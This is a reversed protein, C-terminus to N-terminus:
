KLLGGHRLDTLVISALPRDTRVRIYRLGRRRCDSARAELWRQHSDRYAALTEQSIGLELVAGSEADILEVEGALQPELEQPSVLHIVAVDALRGRLADLGALAGEPTLLDSVVVAISSRSLNRSGCDALAADLDVLGVPMVQLLQRVLQPVQAGRAFPRSLWASSLPQGLCTIRVSEARAAGVYALASVVQAGVQLKAPLGYDMSSSCDLVLLVDLRERGQTVKVQLSGLRGYVNWDVRRFDDGPMYPRYDIFETSPAPRRSAHEGGAGARAPRRSVFSLRDFQRFTDTLKSQSSAM